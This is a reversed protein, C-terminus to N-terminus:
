YLHCAVWHDPQVERLLPEEVACRDMALPCRPRFPCGIPRNLLSPPLGPIGRLASKQDISPLSAILLRTYPHLPERFTDQVSAVEVLSGAYMVGMREVVQAMLGMDHGI